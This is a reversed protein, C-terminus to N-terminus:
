AQQALIFCTSLSWYRLQACGNLLLRQLVVPAAAALVTCVYKSLLKGLMANLAADAQAAGADM